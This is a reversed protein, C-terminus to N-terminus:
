SPYRLLAAIREAAPPHLQDEEQWTAMWEAVPELEFGAQLLLDKARADAAVEFERMEAQQVQSMAVAGAIGGILGNLMKFGRYRLPDRHECHAIEHALVFALVNPDRAQSLLGETLFINGGANSEANVAESKVVHFQYDGGLFPQLRNMVAEVQPLTQSPHLADRSQYFRVVAQGIGPATPELLEVAVEGAEEFLDAPAQEAGLLAEACEKRTAEANVTDRAGLRPLLRRSFEVYNMPGIIARPNRPITAPLKFIRCGRRTSRPGRLLPEVRVSSNLIIRPSQNMM